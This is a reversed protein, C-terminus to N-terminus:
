EPEASAENAGIADRLLDVEEESVSLVKDVIKNM